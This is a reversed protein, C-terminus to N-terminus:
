PNQSPFCARCSEEFKKSHIFLPKKWPNFLQCFTNLFPRFQPILVKGIKIWWSKFGYSANNQFSAM